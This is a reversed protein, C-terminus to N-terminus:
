RCCGSPGPGQSIPTGRLQLRGQGVPSYDRRSPQLVDPPDGLESVAPRFLKAYRIGLPVAPKPRYPQMVRQAIRRCRIQLLPRRVARSRGLEPVPGRARGPRTRLALVVASDEVGYAIVRQSECLPVHDPADEVTGVVELGSPGEIAFSSGLQRCLKRGIRPTYQTFNGAGTENM